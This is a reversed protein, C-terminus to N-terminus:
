MKPQHSVCAGCCCTWRPYDGFVRRGGASQVGATIPEPDVVSRAQLELEVIM